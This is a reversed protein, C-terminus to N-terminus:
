EATSDLVARLQRLAAWALLKRLVPHLMTWLLPLVLAGLPRLVEIQAQGGLPEGWNLGVEVAAWGGAITWTWSRAEELWVLGHRLVDVVPFRTARSVAMRHAQLVEGLADQPGDLWRRDVWHVADGSLYLRTSVGLADLTTEVEIFGELLHKRTISSPATM